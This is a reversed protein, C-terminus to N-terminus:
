EDDNGGIDDNNGQSTNDFIKYYCATVENKTPEKEFYSDLNSRGNTKISDDICGYFGPLANNLTTNGTDVDVLPVAQSFAIDDHHPVM